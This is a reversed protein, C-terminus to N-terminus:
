YRQFIFTRGIPISWGTNPKAQPKFEASFDYGYSSLTRSLSSLSTSGNCIIIAGFQPEQYRFKKSIFPQFPLGAKYILTADPRNLQTNELNQEESDGQLLTVNNDTPILSAKKLRIILQELTPPAYDSISGWSSYHDIQSNYNKDEMSLNRFQSAWFVDTGAFPYYATERLKEPLFSATQRLQEIYARTNPFGLSEDTDRLQQTAELWNSKSSVLRRGLFEFGAEKGRILSIALAPLLWIIAQTKAIRLQKYALKEAEKLSPNAM